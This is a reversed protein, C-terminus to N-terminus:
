EEQFTNLIGSTRSTLEPQYAHTTISFILTNFLKLKDLKSFTSDRWIKTVKRTSNRAIALKRKIQADSGRKNSILSGLYDFEQVVKFGAIQKINLNNRDIIMVKIKKPQTAVM